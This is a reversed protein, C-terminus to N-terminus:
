EGAFYWDSKIVSDKRCVFFLYDHWGRWFYVLRTEEPAKNKEEPDRIPLVADPKGMIRVIDSKTHGPTGLRSGLDNMVAHMRGDWADLDKNFTGPKQKKHKSRLSHYEKALSDIGTQKTLSLSGNFFGALLCFVAMSFLRRVTEPNSMRNRRRQVPISRLGPRYPTRLGRPMIEASIMSLKERQDLGQNYDVAFGAIIPLYFEGIEKEILSMM